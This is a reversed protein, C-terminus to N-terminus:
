IRLLRIREHIASQAEVCLDPYSIGAETDTERGRGPHLIDWRSIKGAARGKGPPHNGFGPVVSNWIQIYRSILASETLAVWVPNLILMRCSFDAIDLNTAQEISRRHERAVRDYLRTSMDPTDKTSVQPDHGTLTRPAAKGIYIPLCGPKKRNAESLEAYAPFEGCYFLAYVGDGYFKDIRDLPIVDSGMLEHAISESLSTYDLPNYSRPKM